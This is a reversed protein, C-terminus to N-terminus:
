PAVRDSPHSLKPRSRARNSAQGHINVCYPVLYTLAASLWRDRTMTGAVIAGGHNIILLLSGVSIAVGLATPALDRDGLCRGFNITRRGGKAVVAWVSGRSRSPRGAM